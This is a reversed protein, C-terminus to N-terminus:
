ELNLNKVFEDLLYRNKKIADIVEQQRKKDSVGVMMVLVKEEYVMFYVRFKEAKLERFSKDGLPKGVYPNEKLKNIRRWLQSQLSLPITKNFQKEFGETM